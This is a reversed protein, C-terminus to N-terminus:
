AGKPVLFSFQRWVVFFLQSPLVGRGRLESIATRVREVWKKFVGQSNKASTVM